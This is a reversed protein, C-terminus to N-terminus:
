KGKNIYQIQVSIKQVFLYLACKLLDCFSWWVLTYSVQTIVRNREVGESSKDGGEM